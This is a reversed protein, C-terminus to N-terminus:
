QIKFDRLLDNPQLIPYDKWFEPDFAQLRTKNVKYTPKFDKYTESDIFQQDM